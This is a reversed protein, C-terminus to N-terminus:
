SAYYVACRVSIGRMANCVTCTKKNSYALPLTQQTDISVGFLFLWGLVTVEVYLYIYYRGAEQGTMKPNDHMSIDKRQLNSPHQEEHYECQNTKLFAFSGQQKMEMDAIGTSSWCM